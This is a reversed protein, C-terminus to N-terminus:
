RRTRRTSRPVLGIAAGAASIAGLFSRRSRPERM